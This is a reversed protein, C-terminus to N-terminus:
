GHGLARRPRRLPHRRQNTRDRGPRRRRGSTPPGHGHASALRSLDFGLETLKHLATEVSRAVIQLGGALSATPAVLLTVASPAVECAEAIRAVVAPTPEKRAELVGVVSDSQERYGITAFIAERGAAARMPGSGMAFYKEENIAWGAYQSALCAPVPHDTVVQVLPCARGGLTGPVITVDALDAMCVRALELGASLGGRVGIGCDILRGGREIPHAAVKCEEACELLSTSWGLARRNLNM